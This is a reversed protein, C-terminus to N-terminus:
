NTSSAIRCANVTCESITVYTKCHYIIKQSKVQDLYFINSLYWAMPYYWVSNDTKLLMILQNYLIIFRNNKYPIGYTEYM